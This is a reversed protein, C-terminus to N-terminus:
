AAPEVEEEDDDTYLAMWVFAAIVAGVIPFLIFAWVQELADANFIAVGFSRVPNVSTNDVPISILHILALVMGVALGGAAPTFKKTTTALVSWMLFATMVIETIMMAVFGYENGEGAFPSRDAWGNTAFGAGGGAPDATSFDVGDNAILYIIAAGAVAGLVQGIMYWAADKAETKGAIIMGITVAPNVHGGSIQGFSYAIVLLSLGFALAVGLVGVYDAALVATGCGGIVLIMTGVLEALLIRVERTM